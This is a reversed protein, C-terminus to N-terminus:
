RAEKEGGGEGRSEGWDQSAVALIREVEPRIDPHLEELKMLGQHVAAAVSIRTESDTYLGYIERRVGNHFRHIQDSLDFPSIEGRKWQEFAAHLPELARSLAREHATAAAERLQRRVHKSFQEM